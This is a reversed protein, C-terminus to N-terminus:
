EIATQTLGGAAQLANQEEVVTDNRAFWAHVGDPDQIVAIAERGSFDNWRPNARAYQRMAPIALSIEWKLRGIEAACEGHSNGDPEEDFRSM